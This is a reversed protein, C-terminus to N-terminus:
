PPQLSDAFPEEPNWDSDIEDGFKPSADAWRCVTPHWLYEVMTQAFDSSLKRIQCRKQV